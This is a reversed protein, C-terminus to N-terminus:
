WNVIGVGILSITEDATARFRLSGGVMSLRCSCWTLYNTDSRARFLGLFTEFYFVCREKTPKMSAVKVSARKTRSSFLASTCRSTYGLKPEGQFQPQRVSCTTDESTATYHLKINRYKVSARKSVRSYSRIRRRKLAVDRVRDQNKFEPRKVQFLQPRGVKHLRRTQTVFADKAHRKVDFSLQRCDSRRRRCCHAPLNEVM